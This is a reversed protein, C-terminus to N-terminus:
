GAVTLVSGAATFFPRPILRRIEDPLERHLDAVLIDYPEPGPLNRLEATDPEVYGLREYLRYAGKNGQDVGLAVRKHHRNRLREEGALLLMTGIGRNRLEENVQFHHFVPVGPLFERLQWEDAEGWFLHVAAALEGDYRAVLVEGLDDAQIELCKRFYAHHEEGLAHSLQEVDDVDAQQVDVHDRNTVRANL